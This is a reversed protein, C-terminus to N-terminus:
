FRFGIFWGDEWPLPELGGDLAGPLEQCLPGFLKPNLTGPKPTLPKPNLTEPKPTQPKPDRNLLSDSSVKPHIPSPVANKRPKLTQPKPNQPQREKPGEPSVPRIQKSPKYLKPNPCDVALSKSVLARLTWTGLYIYQPRLTTGIYTSQPWHIYQKPVHVRSSAAPVRRLRSAKDPSGSRPAM